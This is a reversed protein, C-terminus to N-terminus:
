IASDEVVGQEQERFIVPVRSVKSAKCLCDRILHCQIHEQGKSPVSLPTSQQVLKTFAM